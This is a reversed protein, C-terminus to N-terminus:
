NDKKDKIGAIIKTTSFGEILPIIITKKAITNGVIGELKYDGGKVLIDPQIKEILSLPTDESFPFLFDVENLEALKQLRIDITEIPRTIGKIRKISADDNVAVILTNGLKKAENLLHLHGQHLLDFCGNTFVVVKNKRDLTSLFTNVDAIIKSNQLM